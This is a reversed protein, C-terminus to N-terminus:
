LYKIDVFYENFNDIIKSKDINSKFVFNKFCEVCYPSFVNNYM